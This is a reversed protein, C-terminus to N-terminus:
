EELLDVLKNANKNWSYSDIVFKRNVNSIMDASKKQLLKNLLKALEDINDGIFVDLSKNYSIGEMAASTTVVYKGMAMAELVKNQIGRAIRLPAIALRAHTIYPRIDEVSDTVVVSKNALAKVINTPKSGVIYFKVL